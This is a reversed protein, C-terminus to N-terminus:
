KGRWAEKEIAFLIEDINEALAKELFKSEGEFHFSTMDEHVYIAYFASFGIEVALEGPIMKLGAGEKILTASHRAKMDSADEGEFNGGRAGINEGWITFASSRLNGMDVPTKEQAKRQVFLGAIIMGKKTRTKIAKVKKNLDDLVDDMNEVRIASTTM